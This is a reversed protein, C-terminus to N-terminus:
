ARAGLKKVANDCVWRAVGPLLRAGAITSRAEFGPIIEFRGAVMGELGALAVVDATLMKVNGAIAKTEEPLLAMEATHQPTDTDPPLLLSVAIGLPKFEARLADSFGTLAFKSAAYSSYGYISLVGALSGVNCIHGRGQDVFHPALVKCMHVAGFFNIDMQSRFEQYDQELFRGPVAIGANNILMQAPHALIHEGMISQVVEFDSVDLAIAHVVAGTRGAAVADRAEQLRGQNRAVLTVEAGLAVLQHALSLGIGSSGGTVIVHQKDFYRELSV